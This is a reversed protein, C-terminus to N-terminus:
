GLSVPQRVAKEVAAAFGDRGHNPYKAQPWALNFLVWFDDFPLNSYQCFTKVQEECDEPRKHSFGKLRRVLSFEESVEKKKSPTAALQESSHENGLLGHLLLRDSALEEATLDEEEDFFESM